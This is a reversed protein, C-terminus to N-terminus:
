TISDPSCSDRSVPPVATQPWLQRSPNVPVGGLLLSLSHGSLANCTLHQTCPRGLILDRSVPMQQEGTLYCPCHSAEVGCHQTGGGLGGWIFPQKRNAARTPQFPGAERPM